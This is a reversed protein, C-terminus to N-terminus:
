KEPEVICLNCQALIDSINRWKVPTHDYPQSIKASEHISREQEANHSQTCLSSPSEEIESLGHANEGVMNEFQNQIYTMAVSNESNEKWNWSMTEDFVVDRSLMLKKTCPDFIKYGKECTAYGVFVGKPVRHM